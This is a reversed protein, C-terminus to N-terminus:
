KADGTKALVQRAEEFFKTLLEIQEAYSRRLTAILDDISDDIKRLEDDHRRIQAITGSM